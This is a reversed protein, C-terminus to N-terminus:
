LGCGRHGQDTLANCQTQAGDVAAVGRESVQGNGQSDDVRLRTGHQGGVGQGQSIKCCTLAGWQLGCPLCRADIALDDHGSGRGHEVPPLDRQGLRLNTQLADCLDADARALDVKTRDRYARATLDAGGHGRLDDGHAGDAARGHLGQTIRQIADIGIGEDDM